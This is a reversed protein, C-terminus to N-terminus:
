ALRRSLALGLGTGGFKRTPSADAQEFPRFLRLMQPSDIGPGQDNVVFQLLNSNGAYALSLAVTVHGRETFKIANGVVNLLIQRIRTPDSYIQEPVQGDIKFDFRIGKEGAIQNFMVHLDRLLAPLSLREKEIEVQDAEIKSLDLIDNIIRSLMEGNRKIISISHHRDSRTQHPNELLEAYGLIVGLPTRIEHSINALFNTKARNAEEAAARAKEAAEKAKKLEDEHLRSETRDRTIKIFGKHKGDRDYVPTIVVHAWFRSGDRRMRWGEEEYRGASLAMSLADDSRGDARDRALHLTSFHEGIVESSSYGMIREAGENWSTIVGTPSLMFIAYDKVGDVFMRFQSQSERVQAEAETRDILRRQLRIVLVVATVVALLSVGVRVSPPIAVGTLVLIELVVLVFVLVALGVIGAARKFPRPAAAQSNM